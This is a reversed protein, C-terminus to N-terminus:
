WRSFYKIFLAKLTVDYRDSATTALFSFHKKLSCDGSKDVRTLTVGLVCHGLNCHTGTASIYPLPVPARIGKKNQTFFSSIVPPLFAPLPYAFCVPGETLQFDPDAM